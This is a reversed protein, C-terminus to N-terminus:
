CLAKLKVPREGTYQIVAVDEKVSIPIDNELPYAKNILNELSEPLDREAKSVFVFTIGSKEKVQNVLLRNYEEAVLYNMGSDEIIHLLERETYRPNIQVVTLGLRQAAYYATIYDPHNSIMLGVREGKTLGLENWAGALRDVNEKLQQYTIQCDEYM